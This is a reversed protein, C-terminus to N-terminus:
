LLTVNITIPRSANQNNRLIGGTKKLQLMRPNAMAIASLDM